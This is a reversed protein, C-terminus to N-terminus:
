FISAFEGGNGPASLDDFGKGNPDIDEAFSFANAGTTAFFNIAVGGATAKKVSAKVKAPSTIPIAGVATLFVGAPYEENYDIFTARTLIKFVAIIDDPTGQSVNTAVKGLLLLRYDADSLGNRKEELIEGWTDLNVGEADLLSTKELLDFCTNELDQLGAVFADVFKPFKELGKFQELLREKAKNSVDTVKVIESM